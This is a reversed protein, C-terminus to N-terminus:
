PLRELDLAPGVDGRPRHLQPVAAVALARRGRQRVLEEVAQHQCTGRVVYSTPELREAFGADVLRHREEHAALLLGVRLPGLELRGGGGEGGASGSAQTM